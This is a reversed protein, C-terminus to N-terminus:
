WTLTSSRVRVVDIAPQLVVARPDAVRDVRAADGAVAPLVQVAAVAEPHEGIGRIGVEDVGLRLAAEDPAHVAAGELRAVDLRLGVLSLFQAEVPVRRDMERRILFAREVDAGLEQEARPVVALRPVPDRRVEGRVIRRPLLLLLRAPDRHVVRGGLHVRRDVRDALRGLVWAPDPHAGVVPLHLHRAVPAGRPGVDPAAQRRVPPRHIEHTSALRNSSLARVHGNSRWVM